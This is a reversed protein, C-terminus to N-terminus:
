LAEHNFDQLMKGNSQAHVRVAQHPGTYVLKADLMVQSGRTEDAMEKLWIFRKSTGLCALSKRPCFPFHLSMSLNPIYKPSKKMCM